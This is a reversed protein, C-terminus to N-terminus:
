RKVVATSNHHELLQMNVGCTATKIFIPSKANIVSGKALVALHQNQVIAARYTALGGEEIDPFLHFLHISTLFEVVADGLFELRENHNINSVTEQPKGFRSMINILTNIGRKRTNAYHIRRDGYEPQRIGCNTLANRAHDPNTGFNERYSPHTLALQLLYRDKFPHGIREELIDLSKHFRLHCVLVPLLMAHQVIDCMIGTRYFGTSSVVVTVDRKLNNKTRMEQLRMEKQMLKHRDQYSVKPKNALLHRYKVYERWAKQYSPNGAYSLQLPRIGFHVIEPFKSGDEGVDRDLQDVRLSSPKKGPYTVIMGKIKETFTQWEYESMKMLRPIDAEEVLPKSSDLLYKQVVNMSLIEKGNEEIARAFRPFFHFRKCGAEDAHARLDLDVLELIENFLYDSFIQVGCITFNEPMKEEFYHITYEINFRIVKCTPLNGIKYHSLMSFGEFIFEHDDHKIITPFKTLFNTHPSMTIRYHFLRDYNNSHPNCKELHNEGPYIGHRIGSRRAKLSCRCLPGDNMQGSDNYWLEEHLRNPHHKKRELERMAIEEDDSSEGFSMEGSESDSSDSIKPSKVKTKKTIPESEENEARANVGRDLLESKFKDHLAILKPTANMLNLCTPSREYYLDAPSCRIWETKEDNIEKDGDVEVEMEDEHERGVSGSKRAALRPKSSRQDRRRDSPRQESLSKNFSNPDNNPSERNRSKSRERSTSRVPSRGRSRREGSRSRRPRDTPRRNKVPSRSWRRTRSEERHHHLGLRESSSENRDSSPRRRRESDRSSRNFKNGDRKSNSFHSQGSQSDRNEDSYKALSVTDLKDISRPSKGSNVSSSTQPLHSGGKWSSTAQPPPSSYFAWNPQNSAPVATYPGTYNGQSLRHTSVPNPPLFPPVLSPNSPPPMFPPPPFPPCVLGHCSTDDSYQGSIVSPNMPFPPWGLHPPPPLPYQPLYSPGSSGGYGGSVPSTNWGTNVNQWDGASNYPNKPHGSKSAWGGSRIVTSIVSPSKEPEPPNSGTELLKISSKESM